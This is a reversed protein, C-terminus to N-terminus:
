RLAGDPAMSKLVAVVGDKNASSSRSHADIAEKWLSELEGTSVLNKQVLLDMLHVSISFAAIAIDATDHISKEPM